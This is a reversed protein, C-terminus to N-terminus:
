RDPKRETRIQEAVDRVDLQHHRGAQWEREQCEM